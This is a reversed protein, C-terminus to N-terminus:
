QSTLLNYFGKYSLKTGNGLLQKSYLDVVKDRLIRYVPISPFRTIDAVLYGDIGNVKELFGAEEFRRGSGVMHSPCFYVGGRTISRVEWKKSESDQIDWASGESDAIQGGLMRALRREIIFSCRRGDTFYEVVEDHTLSMSDMLSPISFELNLYPTIPDMKKVRIPGSYRKVLSLDSLAKICLDM